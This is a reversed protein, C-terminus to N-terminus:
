CLFYPSASGRSPAETRRPYGLPLRKSPESQRGSWRGFAPDTLDLDAM